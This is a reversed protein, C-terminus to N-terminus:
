LAIFGDIEDSVKKAAILENIEKLLKEDLRKYESVRGATNKAGRAKKALKGVM